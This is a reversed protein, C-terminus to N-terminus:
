PCEQNLDKWWKDTFLNTSKIKKVLFVPMKWDGKTRAFGNNPGLSFATLIPASDPKYTAEPKGKDMNLISTAMTEGQKIAYMALKPEDINTCDGIAYINKFGEVRLCNDVKLAGKEDVASSLSDKYADNNVKLGVFKFLVDAEISTGKNTVVTGPGTESLDNLNEVKEGLLLNAKFENKMIDQLKQQSRETLKDTVLHDTAHILTVEKDPYVTKIEAVTEVGTAGGGVVVVKKANKVREVLDKYGNFAEEKEMGILKVPWKHTTGTALVLYQYDVEDGSALVVKGDAEGPLIKVVKGKKFSDGFTTLPILSKEAWGPVAIARVSAFNLHFNETQNILTFPRKKALLKLALTTGAIGAGVIVCSM